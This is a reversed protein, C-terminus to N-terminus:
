LFYSVNILPRALTLGGDDLISTYSTVSQLSFRVGYKRACCFYQKSTASVSIKQCPFQYFSKFLGLHNRVDRSHSPHIQGGSTDVM